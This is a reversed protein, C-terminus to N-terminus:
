LLGEYTSYKKIFKILNLPTAIKGYESHYRKHCAECLTIGNEPNIRLDENYKYSFIHHAELSEGSGCCQCIDDRSVVRNRWYNYEPTNRNSKELEILGCIKHAYEKTYDIALIQFKPLTKLIPDISYGILEVESGYKWKYRDVYNNHILANLTKNSDEDMLTVEQCMKGLFSEPLDVDVIKCNLRYIGFENIEDIITDYYFSSAIKKNGENDKYIFSIIDKEFSSLKHLNNIWFSHTHKQPFNHQYMSEINKGLNNVLLSYEGKSFKNKIKNLKEQKDINHLFRQRKLPHMSNLEGSFRLNDRIPIAGIM